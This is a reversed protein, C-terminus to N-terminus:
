GVPEPDDDTVIYEPDTDFGPDPDPKPEPLEGIYAPSLYEISTQNKEPIDYRWGEQSRYSTITLVVRGIQDVPQLYDIFNFRGHRTSEGEGLPYQYIGDFSNSGYVSCVLPQNYIDFCSITFEVRTINLNSVNVIALKVANNDVYLDTARLATNYNEITVWASCSYNGDDTYGIIEVSGWRHGTVTPRTGTGRVTAISEDMSVWRMKTNSADSPQLVANLRVTDEVDGYVSTERLYVGEVPQLVNVRVTAQKGSGDQAKITITCEGRKVGYIVGNQDVTAVSTKNSSLTVTPDTVDTPGVTWRIQANERVNLSITKVDPTISTVLQHVAVDAYAEVSNDAKARCYIRCVGAKVGTVKGDSSVKAIAPDSSEWTVQRNNANKPLVTAKLTVSRGTNVTVSSQDLTVSEPMQVVSVSMSASKGSGDTAKVRIVTSGKAVAQILGNQDVVAIKPNDSSYAVAPNSANAPSIDVQAFAAGGVALDMSRQAFSLATIEQIVTLHVSATIQPDAKSAAIIECEGLRVATVRGDQAVRAVSTDSSSWTVKTDTANSPQVSAKLTTSKGAALMIASDGGIAVGTPLLQVSITVTDSKRSGDLSTARLIAKGKALGTVLGNDDVSAIKPTESTWRVAKFTADSPAVSVDLQSVGGVGITTQVTDVTLQSIPTVVLVGYRTETEPNSVSRVTLVCAGPEKASVQLGKVALIDEDTSALAFSMDSATTPEATAKLTLTRGQIVLLIRELFQSEAYMEEPLQDGLLSQALDFPVGDEASLVNLSDEKLAIGTVARLVNVKITARYTQKATKVSATIQATGKNLGTVVGSDDVSVIKPSGSTFKVTGGELGESLRVTLLAQENEFVTVTKEDFSISEAALASAALLLVALLTLTGIIRKMM